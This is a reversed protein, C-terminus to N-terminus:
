RSAEVNGDCNALKPSLKGANVITIGPDAYAPSISSSPDNIPIPSTTSTTSPPGSNSDPPPDHASQNVGM